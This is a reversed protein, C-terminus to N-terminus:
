KKAPAFPDAFRPDNVFDEDTLARLFAILDAREDSTIKFGPVFIDKNPNQAGVGALPGSAITRGGAAYHDIVEELTAISGDHMYPATLAVNRLTPARFLGVHERRGTVEAVGANFPPYNGTGGINYLGTNHFAIELFSTREHVVNDNLNLSGHCHHCEFRESFFLAEGRKAADSIANAERGFRYRDYPSNASILTREFAAIAMVIKPISAPGPDEPFAAAMLERYLPDSDLADIVIKERGALGMEVPQEGFMPVLAQNELLKLLPNAWTLVPNYAVNALSMASRPHAQGTVGVSTAKGDTFALSQQHCTACSFTGDLSLRKEYFLHRGLEVKAMSMANGQPVAPKPLWAPIRWEYEEAQAGGFLSLALAVIIALRIM